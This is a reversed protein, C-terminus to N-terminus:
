GLVVLIHQRAEVLAVGILGTDGGLDVFRHMTGIKLGM